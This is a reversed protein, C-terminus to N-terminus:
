IPTNREQRGRVLMRRGRTSGSDQVAARVYYLPLVTDRGYTGEGEPVSGGPSRRSQMRWM